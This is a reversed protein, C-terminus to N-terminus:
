RGQLAKTFNVAGSSASSIVQGSRTGNAVIVYLVVAGFFYKAYTRV